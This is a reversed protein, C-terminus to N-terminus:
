ILLLMLGLEFLYNKMLKKANAMGSNWQPYFCQNTSPYYSDFQGEMHGYYGNYGYHASGYDSNSSNMSWDM